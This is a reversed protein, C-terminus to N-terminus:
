PWYRRSAHELVDRVIPVHVPEVRAWVARANNDDQQVFTAFLLADPPCMFLLEGPMGICSDAALLVFDPSSRRVELGLVFGDSQVPGLKLDIALWGSFLTRRVTVPAEEVIARSWQEATRERTAGVVVLFADEYDIHSVTSLARAAPPVAVQRVRGQTEVHSTM